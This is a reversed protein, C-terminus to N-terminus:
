HCLTEIEIEIEIEETPVAKRRYHIMDWSRHALGGPATAAATIEEESAFAFVCWKLFSKMRTVGFFKGFNPPVTIGRKEDDFLGKIGSAPHLPGNLLTLRAQRCERVTSKAGGSGFLDIAQNM